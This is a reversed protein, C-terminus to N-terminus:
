RFNFKAKVTSAKSTHDTGVFIKRLYTPIELQCGSAASEVWDDTPDCVGNTDGHLKSSSVEESHQRHSDGFKSDVYLSIARPLTEDLFSNLRKLEQEQETM